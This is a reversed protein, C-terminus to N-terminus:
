IHNKDNEKFKIYIDCGMAQNAWYSFWNVTYVRNPATGSVEGRMYNGTASSSFGQFFIIDRAVDLANNEDIEATSGFTVFGNMSWHTQTQNTGFIPISWPLTLTYGGNTATGYDHSASSLTKWSSATTFTFEPILNATDDVATPNAATAINIKWQKGKKHHMGTYPQNWNLNYSLTSDHIQMLGMNQYM